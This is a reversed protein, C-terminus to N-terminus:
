KDGAKDELLHSVVENKRGAARTSSPWSELAGLLEETGDHRALAPRAIGYAAGRCSSRDNIYAARLLSTM